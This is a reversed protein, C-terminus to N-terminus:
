LTGDYEAFVGEETLITIHGKNEKDKSLIKIRTDIKRNFNNRLYDVNMQNDKKEMAAIDRSTPYLAISQPCDITATDGRYDTVVAQWRDGAKPTHRQLLYSISSDINTNYGMVLPAIKEFGFRASFDTLLTEVNYVGEPRAVGAATIHCQGEQDLSCRAKNWGEFHKIYRTTGHTAEEIEFSGVGLLDSYLEPLTHKLRQSTRSIAGECIEALQNLCRMIEMDSVDSACSAKVSDTDGGTILMRDGFHQYLMEMCIILHMRSGAVIRSGYNYYVKSNKPMRDFFNSANVRTEPDISLEGDEVMYDPRMEDMAQTGFIGNYQGKVTSQYYSNLFEKSIAGSEIQLAIEHPITSPITLAYPTEDYKKLVQKLANKTEFLVHSQATVYDPPRRFSTSVEGVLPKMDDFDYVRSINWLEMETVYIRAKDASYLKGFGFVGNSAIDKYGGSKVDNDATINREDDGFSSATRDQFKSRSLLAIHDRAFVSGEKLRLNTFEVCAHIGFLFPKEYHKFIYEDDTELVSWCANELEDLDAREFNFPLFRGNIFLHHMSVADLSVVNEVTTSAYKAATFTFGGRFCAKRLAYTEYDKAREANCAQLFYRSLTSEKGHRDRVKHVGIENKAMQRVLSTKTLVQCGFMAEELWANSELLFRLYAPIVQVDRKAYYLEQDTLPTKPTRIKEYDWSGSAKEIGCTKGMADLGRMELFYTDWFRLLVDGSPTCIDLTYIHTSSQAMTQMGYRENLQAILPKLDFILNYVCVIPSINKRRGWMILQEIYELADTEERLFSVQENENDPEYDILQCEKVDNFIYLIPYARTDEGSGINCTETDYVTTIKFPKRGM